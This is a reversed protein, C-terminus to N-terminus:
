QRMRRSEESLPMDIPRQEYNSDDQENVSERAFNGRGIRCVGNRCLTPFKNCLHVDAKYYENGKAQMRLIYYDAGDSPDLLSTASCDDQLGACERPASAQLTQNTKERQSDTLKHSCNM